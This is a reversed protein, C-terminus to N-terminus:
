LSTEKVNLTVIFQPTTTIAFFIVVIKYKSWESSRLWHLLGTIYWSFDPFNIANIKGQEFFILAWTPDQCVEVIVHVEGLVHVEGWLPEILIFFYRYSSSNNNSVQLSSEM